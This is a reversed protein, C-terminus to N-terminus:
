SNYLMRYAHIMWPTFGARNWTQVAAQSAAEYTTEVVVANRRAALALSKEILNAAVSSRRFQERVYLADILGVKRSQVIPPICELTDVRGLIFGAFEGDCEAILGFTASDRFRGTLWALLAKEPSQKIKMDPRVAQLCFALWEKGVPALDERRWDRVAIEM